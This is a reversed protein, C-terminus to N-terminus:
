GSEMSPTQMDASRGQRGERWARLSIIALGAGILAIGAWETAVIAEGFMLASTVLALVPVAFINLSATGAPLVGLVASWLVFGVGTSLVGAYFVCAIYTGTWRTEPQPLLWPVLLLPLGGAAIQWTIFNVLDLRDRRQFYKIAVTGAAWGFGSLVAWLKPALDGQWQWPEVILVLGALACAIAVWQSGRVREGLVPWALIMTWFPMTFVLVSTRGAGGSVLAMTTGTFNITTQFFGAVIVAAWSQPWFPRREIVLVAFLLALAAVIRHGNFVPASADRLAEKIVVWNCGWMLTIAILAAYAGRASSIAFVSRM